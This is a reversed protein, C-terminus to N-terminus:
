KTPPQLLRAASDVPPMLIKDLDVKRFLELEHRNGLIDNAVIRGDKVEVVNKIAFTPGGEDLTCFTMEPNDLPEEETEGDSNTFAVTREVHWIDYTVEDEDHSIVVRSARKFAPLLDELTLQGFVHKARTSDKM